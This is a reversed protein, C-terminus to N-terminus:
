DGCQLFWPKQTDINIVNQILSHVYYVEDMESLYYCIIFEYNGKQWKQM